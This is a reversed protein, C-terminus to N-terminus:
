IYIVKLIHIIHLLNELKDILDAQSLQSYIVELSLMFKLILMDKLMHNVKLMQLKEQLM